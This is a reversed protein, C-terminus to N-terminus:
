QEEDADHNPKHQASLRTFVKVLEDVELNVGVVTCMKWLLCSKLASCVVVDCSSVILITLNSNHFDHCVLARDYGAPRDAIGVSLSASVAGIRLRGEFDGALVEGAARIQESEALFVNFSPYLGAV